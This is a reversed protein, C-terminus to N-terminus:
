AVREDGDVGRIGDGLADASTRRARLRNVVAPAERLAEPRDLLANLRVRYAAPSLGLDERIRREKAGIRRFTLGELALIRRDLDTLPETPSTM